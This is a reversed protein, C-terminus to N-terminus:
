SDGGTAMPTELLCQWRERFRAFSFERLVWQRAQQGMRKAREPAQMMQRIAEAVASPETPDVLLGHEGHHIVEVPAGVNPGIVPKGFAMAELYVLGFGEGKPAKPDVITQAPMVFAQCAQYAAVLQPDKVTGVFLVRDQVGLTQVLRMLRDRDEGDGIILYRLDPFSHRLKQMAQIVVDQGKYREEISLRGVTLLFPRDELGLTRLWARDPPTELLRPDLPNPLISIRQKPIGQRERILQATWRSVAIIRHARRLARRKWHPLTGWVEVGHAVVGYAVSFTSSLGQAVPALSVHTCLIWDPRHNWARTWAGLVFRIRESLTVRTHGSPSKRTQPIAWLTVHDRGYLDQLARSLIRTYRQIGGHVALSPSLILVKM